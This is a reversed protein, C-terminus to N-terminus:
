CYCLTLLLVLSIYKRTDTGLFKSAQKTTQNPAVPDHTTLKKGQHHQFEM